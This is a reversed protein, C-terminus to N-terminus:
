ISSSKSEFRASSELSRWVDVKAQAAILMWRLRECRDCADKIADLHALYDPHAYAYSEKSADTKDLSERMLKAKLSKRFETVYLLDAKAQAYDKASDRIFDLAKIPDIQTM